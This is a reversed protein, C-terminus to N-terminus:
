SSNTSQFIVSYSENIRNIVEELHEKSANVCNIQRDLDQIHRAQSLIERDRNAIEQQLKGIVDNELKKIKKDQSNCHKKLAVIAHDKEEIIRDKNSLQSAQKAM